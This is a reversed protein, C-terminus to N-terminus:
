LEIIQRARCVKDQCITAPLYHLSPSLSHRRPILRFAAFTPNVSGFDDYIRPQLIHLTHLWSQVGTWDDITWALQCIHSADASAKSWPGYAICESRTSAIPLPKAVFHKWGHCGADAARSAASSSQRTDALLAEQGSSMSHLLTKPSLLLLRRPTRPQPTNKRLWEYKLM